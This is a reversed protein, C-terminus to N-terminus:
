ESEREQGESAQGRGTGHVRSHMAAKTERKV